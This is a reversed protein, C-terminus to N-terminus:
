YIKFRIIKLSMSVFVDTAQMIFLIIITFSVELTMLVVGCSLADSVIMMKIVRSADNISRFNFM